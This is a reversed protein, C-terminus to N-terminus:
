LGGDRIYLIFTYNYVSLFRSTHILKVVILLTHIYIAVGGGGLFVGFLCFLLLLCVFVFQAPPTAECM